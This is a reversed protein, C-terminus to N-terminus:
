TGYDIVAPGLGVTTEYLLKEAASMDFAWMVSQVATMGLKICSVLRLKNDPDKSM